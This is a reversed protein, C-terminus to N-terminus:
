NNGGQEARHKKVVTHVFSYNANLEKAIEGPTMGQDAYERILDSKSPGKESTPKEGGLMNKIVGYVFSYHSNTEKAIKSVSMGEQYMSRILDSKTPAKPTGTTNIEDEQAQATAAVNEAEVEKKTSKDMALTADVKTLDVVLNNKEVTVAAEVATQNKAM